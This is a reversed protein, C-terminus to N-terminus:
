KSKVKPDEFRDCVKKRPACVVEASCPQKALVEPFGVLKVRVFGNQFVINLEDEGITLLV